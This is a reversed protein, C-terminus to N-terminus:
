FRSCPQTTISSNVKIDGATAHAPFLQASGAATRSAKAPAPIHEPRNPQACTCCGPLSSLFACGASKWNGVQQQMRRFLIMAKYFHQQAAMAINALPCHRVASMGACPAFTMDTSVVYYVTKYLHHLVAGTVCCACGWVTSGCFAPPVLLALMGVWGVWTLM